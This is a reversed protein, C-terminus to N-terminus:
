KKEDRQYRELRELQAQDHWAQDMKARSPNQADYYNSLAFIEM